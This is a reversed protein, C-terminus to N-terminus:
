TNRVTNPLLLAKVIKEVRQAPNEKKPEGAVLAVDEIAHPQSRPNSIFLGEILDLDLFSLDQQQEPTPNNVDRMYTSGGDLSVTRKYEWGTRDPKYKHRMTIEVDGKSIILTHFDGEKEALKIRVGETSVTIVQVVRRESKIGTDYGANAVTTHSLTAEVYDATNLEPIWRAAIDVNCAKGDCSAGYLHTVETNQPQEGQEGQEELKRAFFPFCPEDPGNRDHRTTTSAVDLLSDKATKECVALAPFRAKDKPTIIRSINAGAAVLLRNLLATQEEDRDKLGASDSMKIFGRVLSYISPVGLDQLNAIREIAYQPLTEIERTLNYYLRATEPGCRKYIDIITLINHEAKLPSEPYQIRGADLDTKALVLLAMLAEAHPLTELLALDGNLKLIKPLRRNLVDPFPLQRLLQAVRTNFNPSQEALIERERGTELEALLNERSGIYSTGDGQKKLIVTKGEESGDKVNFIITVAGHKGPGGKETRITLSGQDGSLGFTQEVKNADTPETSIM